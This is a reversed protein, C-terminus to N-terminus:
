ALDRTDPKNPNEALTRAFCRNDPACRYHGFPPVPAYGASEYLGIAATQPAGTELILDSAGHERATAELHALMQRGLGLRQSAPVVYMRKIEAPRELGLEAAVDPRFRWAGTAVPLGELYGVFFAGLPPDFYGEELPTEDRGGYIGVYVEQVEEVLRAADPHTIPVRLIEMRAM